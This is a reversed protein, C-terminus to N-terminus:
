PFGCLNLFFSSRGEDSGDLLVDLALWCLNVTSGPLHGSVFIDLAASAISFPTRVTLDFEKVGVGEVPIPDGLWDAITDHSSPDYLRLYYIKYYGPDVFFPPMHANYLRVQVAIPFVLPTDVGLRIYYSGTQNRIYVYDSADPADVPDDLVAYAPGEPHVLLPMELDSIPRLIQTM